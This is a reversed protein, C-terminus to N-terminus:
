GLFGATIIFAIGGGLVLFTFLLSIEDKKYKIASRLHRKFYLRRRRFNEYTTGIKICTVGVVAIVILAVPDM